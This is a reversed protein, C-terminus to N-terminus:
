IEGRIFYKEVEAWGPFAPFSRDDFYYDAYIKKRAYGLEELNKNVADPTFGRLMLWNRMNHIFNDERCTWIIIKHGMSQLKSMTQIAGPLEQGIKPFEHKCITGDFDVAFIM